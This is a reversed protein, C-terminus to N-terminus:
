RNFEVSAYANHNHISEINESEVKFYDIRSDSKLKLTIDRVIDEVFRPNEYAKETVYKEDRRKLLSYIECSASQEVYEIVEEIWIFDTYSVEVNVFSRQNHAGYKSIEKSCPCLTTVPVEVGIILKYDTDYSAKFTCQYSMLSEIGSVPAKKKIFYPFRIETFASDASLREKVELLFAELNVIFNGTHYRNLIEIFRSMHTGRHEHPLNVYIDLDAVTQQVSNDRDEVVIPYLVNKVGVRDIAINRDDKQSQIDKNIM